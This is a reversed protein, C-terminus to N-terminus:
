QRATLPHDGLTHLAHLFGPRKTPAWTLAAYEQIGRVQYMVGSHGAQLLLGSLKQTLSLRSTGTLGLYNTGELSPALIQATGKRKEISEVSALLYLNTGRQHRTRHPVSCVYQPMRQERSLHTKHNRPTNLDEM